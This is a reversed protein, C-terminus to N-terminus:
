GMSVSIALCQSISAGGRDYRTSRGLLDSISGLRSLRQCAGRILSRTCQGLSAFLSLCGGGAAHNGCAARGYIGPRAWVCAIRNRGMASAFASLDSSFIGCVVEPEM